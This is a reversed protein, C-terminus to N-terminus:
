AAYRSFKAAMLFHRFVALILYQRFKFKAIRDLAIIYNIQVEPTYSNYKGRTHCAKPELKPISNAKCGQKSRRHGERLSLFRWVGRPTPLVAEKKFYKYLSM